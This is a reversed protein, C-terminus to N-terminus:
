DTIKTSPGSTGISRIYGNMLKYYHLLLKKVQAEQEGSVLNRKKAKRLLAETEKASGRSYYCFNRNEKYFYRGYGEAINLEISDAARVFQKALTDKAFYPWNDVIDWVIDGISMASKYVELEELPIM